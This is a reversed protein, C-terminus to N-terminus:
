AAGRAAARRAEAKRRWPRWSDAPSFPDGVHYDAILASLGRVPKEEMPRLRDWGAARLAEIAAGVGGVAACEAEILSRDCGLWHGLLTARLEAIGAKAKEATPGTAEFSMDCESDFGLSRNNLNASGIRLLRDDIITLKAHVIIIRDRATVPSYARLRGFHDAQRLTALFRSRTPDMTAQDFYSPSHATGVLVVEPGEPEALRRALAAAVLPSTFYQNEMYICTRAAAISEVHLRQIERVEPYQRWAGSTRSLGVTVDALQAQVGSPWHPATPPPAALHEGTARAWRARFLDGLAAAPAGTVLGMVEHRSDFYRGVGGHGTVTRVRRPDDDLHAATDWRDPGIDAGGCFALADDVIIAKQHHCAGVPLKADLVCKVRSRAFTQPDTVTFWDQTAAIPLASDWCLLRVDLEPRSAALAKLFVAIRDGRPEQGFATPHLPTQPEFAWNLLWVTHRAAAMAEEAADFYAEVDILLSAQDAVARRWCTTGEELLM